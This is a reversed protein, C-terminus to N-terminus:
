RKKKKKGKDDPTGIGIGPRTGDRRAEAIAAQEQEFDDAYGAFREPDTTGPDTYGGGAPFKPNTGPIPPFGAPAPPPVGHATSDDGEAAPPADGFSMSFDGAAAEYVDVDESQIEHAEIEEEVDITELMPKPVMPAAPAMPAARPLPAGMPPALSAASAPAPGVDAGVNPLGNRARWHRLAAVLDQYPIM